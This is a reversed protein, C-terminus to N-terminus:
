EETLETSRLFVPTGSGVWAGTVNHEMFERAEDDTMEYDKILIQVYKEFDYIVVDVNFQTGYGIIADDFGDAKLM